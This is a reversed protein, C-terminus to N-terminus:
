ADTKEEYKWGSAEIVRRIIPEENMGMVRRVTKTTHNVEYTSMSRPVVWRGGDCLAAFVKKQWAVANAMGEDTDIDFNFRGGMNFNTM